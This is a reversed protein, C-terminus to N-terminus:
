YFKDQKRQSVGQGRNSFLKLANRMDCYARLVANILVNFRRSITKLMLLKPLNDGSLIIKKKINCDLLYKLKFLRKFHIIPPIINKPPCLSQKSITTSDSCIQREPLIKECFFILRHVLNGCKVCYM